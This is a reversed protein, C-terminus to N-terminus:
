SGGCPDAAEWARKVYVRARHPWALRADDALARVPWPAPAIVLFGPNLGPLSASSLIYLPEETRRQLRARRNELVARDDEDSQGVILLWGDDGAVRWAGREALMAVAERGTHETWGVQEPTWVRTGGLDVCTEGDVSRAGHEVVWDGALSFTPGDGDELLRAPAPSALRQEVWGDRTARRALVESHRMGQEGLHVVLVVRVAAEAGAVIREERWTSAAECDAGVPTTTGPLVSRLGYRPGGSGLAVSIAISKQVLTCGEQESATLLVTHVSWGAADWRDGVAVGLAADPTCLGVLADRLDPTATASALALGPVLEPHTVPARTELIRAETLLETAADPHCRVPAAHSVALLLV